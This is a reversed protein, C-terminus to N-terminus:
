RPSGIVPMPQTPPLEAVASADRAADWYWDTEVGAPDLQPAAHRRHASPPPPLMGLRVLAADRRKLRREYMSAAVPTWGWAFAAGLAASLALLLAVALVLVLVCVLAVAAILLIANM